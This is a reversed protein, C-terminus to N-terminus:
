ERKTSTIYRVNDPDFVLLAGLGDKEMQRRVKEARGEWSIFDIGTRPGCVNNWLGSRLGLLHKM